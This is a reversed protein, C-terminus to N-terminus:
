KKLKLEIEKLPTKKLLNNIRDNLDKVFPTELRDEERSWHYFALAKSRDDKLSDFVDVASSYLKRGAEPNGKRFALAGQTATIVAQSSKSLKSSDIKNLISEAEDTRNLSILSFAMNNQLMFEHPSSLLGLKAIRIAEDHKELALSAIFSGHLAPRSSFPQYKLWSIISNLAQEYKGDAYFLQAEAEFSSKNSTLRSKIDQSNGLHPLLFVAQALTNETPAILATKLFKKASKVEGSKAELTGIAGALESKNFDGVNEYNLVKLGRRYEKPDEGLSDSIAIEASIVWPDPNNRIAKRLYFLSLDGEDIHLFFRSASLLLFRNESNGNIAIQMADKAKENQGITAYFFSLEAWKIYNQPYERLQKKINALVDWYPRANEPLIIDPFPEHTGSSLQLYNKALSAALQSAKPSDLIFRAAAIAEEIAFSNQLTAAGVLESAQPLHSKEAWNQKAEEINGKIETELTEGTHDLLGSWRAVQYTHWRPIMQRKKHLFEDFSM